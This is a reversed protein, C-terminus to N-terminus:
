LFHEVSKYSPKHVCKRFPAWMNQNKAWKGMTEANIAGTDREATDLTPHYIINKLKNFLFLM